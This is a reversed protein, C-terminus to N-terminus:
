WLLCAPHLIIIFYYLYYHFSFFSQYYCGCKLHKISIDLVQENIGVILSLVTGDVHRGIQLAIPPSTRRFCEWGM